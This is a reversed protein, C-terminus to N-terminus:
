MRFIIGTVALEPRFKHVAHLSLLFLVFVLDVVINLYTICPRVLFPQDSSDLGPGEGIM